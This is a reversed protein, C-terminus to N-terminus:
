GTKAATIQTRLEASLKDEAMFRGVWRVRSHGAAKHIAEGSGYVFFEQHPVYQLIEVGAARLSDLWEDKKPAGLQIIYYYKGGFNIATGDAKVTETPPNQLPEFFKGPLNITTKLQVTEM